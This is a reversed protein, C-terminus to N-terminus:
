ERVLSVHAGSDLLVNGQKQFGSQGYINVRLVPLLAERQSALSTVSVKVTTSRHLLLTHHFYTCEKGNETRTCKQHRSCNDSRHEQGAPKLCSFCVHNEKAAFKHCQDPWHSSNKCYWCKHRIKRSSEDVRVHSISRQHSASRLPATARM